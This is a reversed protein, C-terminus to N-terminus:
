SETGEELVADGESNAKRAVEPPLHAAPWVEILDEPGSIAERAGVFGQEVLMKAHYSASTWDRFALGRGRWGFVV